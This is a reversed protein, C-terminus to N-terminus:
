KKGNAKILLLAYSTGQLSLCLAPLPANVEGGECRGERDPERDEWADGRRERGHFGCALAGRLEQLHGDGAAAAPRLEGPGDREVEPRAPGGDEERRDGQGDEVEAQHDGM